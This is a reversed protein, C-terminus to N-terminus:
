KLFVNVYVNYIENERIYPPFKSILSIFIQIWLLVGEKYRIACNNIKAKYLPIHIIKRLYGAPSFLKGVFIHIDWCDNCRVVIFYIGLQTKSRTLMQCNNLFFTEQTTLLSFIDFIRFSFSYKKHTSSVICFKCDLVFLM